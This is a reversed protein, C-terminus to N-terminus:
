DEIRQITIPRGIWLKGATARLEAVLEVEQQEESVGFDYVVERWDTTGSLTNDRTLGSIRLGAGAGRDDVIADVDEVRLRASLRYRGAPLVLRKRWSAVCEGSDRADILYGGQGDDADDDNDDDDAESLEAEGVESRPEWDELPLPDVPDLVLPGDDPESPPPDPENLQREISRPRAKLREKLQAIQDDYGPALDPNHEVLVPRLRAHLADVRELLRPEDFRPLMQRVIDRYRANEEDDSRVAQAVLAPFPAFVPFDPDQFMQDMGHLLFWAKGSPPHFYVRYNNRNAVYGDWHCAMTEFAMFSLFADLDLIQAIKL